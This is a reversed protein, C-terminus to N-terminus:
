CGAARAEQHGAYSLEGREVLLNALQFREARFNGIILVLRESSEYRVPGDDTRRQDEDAPRNQPQQTRQYQAPESIPHGFAQGAPAILTPRSPERAERLHERDDHVCRRDEGHARDNRRGDIVGAFRESARCAEAHHHRRERLRGKGRPQKTGSARPNLM